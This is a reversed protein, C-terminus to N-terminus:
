TDSVVTHDRTRIAQLTLRRMGPLSFIREVIMSGGVMLLFQRGIATVM